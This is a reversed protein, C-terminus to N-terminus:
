VLYPIKLCQEGTTLLCSDLLCSDVLVVYFGGRINRRTQMPSFLNESLPSSYLDVIRRSVQYRSGVYMMSKPCVILFHVNFNM